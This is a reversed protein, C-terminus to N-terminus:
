MGGGLYSKIVKPNAKIEDPVGEAILKGFDLVVIRQAMSMVVGMDHEVLIIPISKSKFVELIYESMNTKEEQSLGAMPEDLLLVKPGMALARGFDVRKRLGYPLTGVPQRRISKMDLLEIVEEVKERQEAEDRCAPGFSLIGAIPNSRHYRNRALLLNDLTNLEAYLATNQFTRAVGLKAVRHPPLASINKGELFIDGRQPEYVRSICNLVSTKGAGNPGIIALIENMAISFSVNSLVQVGGFALYVNDVKLCVNDNIM